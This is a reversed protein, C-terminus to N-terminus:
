LSNIYNIILKNKKKFRICRLVLYFSILLVLFILHMSLFVHNIYFLCIKPGKTVFYVIKSLNGAFIYCLNFTRKMVIDNLQM